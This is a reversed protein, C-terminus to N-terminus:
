ARDNDEVERIFQQMATKISDVIDNLVPMEKQIEEVAKQIQPSASLQYTGENGVLGIIESCVYGIAEVIQQGIASLQTAAMDASSPSVAIINGSDASDENQRLTNAVSKAGQLASSYANGANSVFINGM